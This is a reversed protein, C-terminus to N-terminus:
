KGACAQAGKLSFTALDPSPAYKWKDADVQTGIYLYGAMRELTVPYVGNLTKFSDLAVVLEKRFAACDKSNVTEIRRTTFSLGYVVLAAVPVAYGLLTGTLAMAHGSRRKTTWRTQYLGIHGFIIALPFLLPFFLVGCSLGALGFWTPQDVDVVVTNAAKDGLTQHRRDIVIMLAPPVAVLTMGVLVLLGSPALGLSEDAATVIGVVFLVSGLVVATQNVLYVLVASAVGITAGTEPVQARIGMQAMGITQGTRGMRRPILLFWIFVSAIVSSSLVVWEIWDGGACIPVGNQVRCTKVADIAFWGILRVILVVAGAILGVFYADILGSWARRWYGSYPAFLYENARTAASRGWEDSAVASM